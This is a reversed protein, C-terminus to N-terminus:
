YTVDIKTDSSTITCVPNEWWNTKIPSPINYPTSVITNCRKGEQYGRYYAEDIERNMGVVMKELDSKKITVTDETEEIANLIIISM